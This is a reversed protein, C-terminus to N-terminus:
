GVGNVLVDVVQDASGRAMPLVMGIGVEDDGRDFAATSINCRSKAWSTDLHHQLRRRKRHARAAANCHQIEQIFAFM